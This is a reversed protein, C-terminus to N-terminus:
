KEKPYIKLIYEKGNICFHAPYRENDCVRLKNFLDKIPKNIDIAQNKENRRAFFSEPGTQPHAPMPYKELFTIAMRQLTLFLKYRVGAILETGDLEVVDKIYWDGSDLGEAAEFLTIPVKNCGDEVQWSAPSWGKGQPVDSAHIVINSKFKALAEKKFIRDCSLIFLIDGGDIEQIQRYVVVENSYKSFSKELTPVYQWFWSGPNDVVIGIKKFKSSNM